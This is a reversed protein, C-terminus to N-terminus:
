ILWSRRLKFIHCITISTVVVIIIIINSHSYPWRWSNISNLINFTHFKILSISAIIIIISDIIIIVCYIIIIICGPYIIISSIWWSWYSMIAFYLFNISLNPCNLILIIIPLIIIYTPSVFTILYLLLLLYKRWFM